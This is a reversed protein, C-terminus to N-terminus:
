KDTSLGHLPSHRAGVNVHALFLLLQICGVIGQMYSRVVLGSFWAAQQWPSPGSEAIVTAMELADAGTFWEARQLADTFGLAHPNRSLRYPSSLM